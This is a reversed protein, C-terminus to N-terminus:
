KNPTVEYLTERSHKYIRTNIRAGSELWITLGYMYHMKIKKVEKYPFDIFVNNYGGCRIFDDYMKLCSKITEVDILKNHEAYGIYNKELEEKLALYFDRKRM